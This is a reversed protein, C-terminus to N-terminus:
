SSEIGLQSDPRSEQDQNKQIITSAIVAYIRQVFDKIYPVSALGYDTVMFVDARAGSALYRLIGSVRPM